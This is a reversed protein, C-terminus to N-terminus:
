AGWGDVHYVKMQRRWAKEFITLWVLSELAEDRSMELRADCRSEFVALRRLEVRSRRASRYVADVGCRWCM